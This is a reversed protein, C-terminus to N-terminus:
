YLTFLSIIAVLVQLPPGSLGLDVHINVGKISQQMNYKPAEEM